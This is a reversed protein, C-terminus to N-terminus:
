AKMSETWHSLVQYKKASFTLDKLMKVNKAIMQGSKTWIEDLFVQLHKEDLIRSKTRKEGFRMEKM